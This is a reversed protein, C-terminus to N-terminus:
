SYRGAWPDEAPSRWMLGQFLSIPGLLENPLALIFSHPCFATFPFFGTGPINDPLKGCHGVSAGDGLVGPLRPLVSDGRGYGWQSGSMPPQPRSRPCGSGPEELVGALAVVSYLAVLARPSVPLTRRM